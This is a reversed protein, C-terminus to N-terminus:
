VQLAARAHETLKGMMQLYARPGHSLRAVGLECLVSLPPMADGAMLNVPLPSTRVLQEILGRETLGPVFLCDAGNEAYVHAREVSAAVMAADHVAPKSNLFADTRANIFFPIELRAAANRAAKVREGHQAAPRLGGKLDGDELNCGVAGAQIAQEISAAVDAPTSGYGTELDVTVPLEVARVIRSLNGIVLDFPFQEGDAYGNAAAVAWSATAIAPSGAAAIAKASGADWCNVLVLPKGPVHLSRFHLAKNKQESM